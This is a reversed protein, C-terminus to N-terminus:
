YMDNYKGISHGNFEYGETQFSPHPYHLVKAQNRRRRMKMQVEYHSM